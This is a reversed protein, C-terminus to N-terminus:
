PSDEPDICKTIKHNGAQRSGAQLSSGHDRTLKQSRIGPLRRGADPATRVDILSLKSLMPPPCRLRCGKFQCNYISLQHPFCTILKEKECRQVLVSGLPLYATKILRTAAIPKSNTSRPQLGHPLHAPRLETNCCRKRLERSSLWVACKVCPRFCTWHCITAHYWMREAPGSNLGWHTWNAILKETNNQFWDIFFLMRCGSEENETFCQHNRNEKAGAPKLLCASSVCFRAALALLPLLCMVNLPPTQIYASARNECRQSCCQQKYVPWVVLQPLVLCSNFSLAPVHLACSKLCVIM